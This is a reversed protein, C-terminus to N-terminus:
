KKLRKMWPKKSWTLNIHNQDLHVQTITEGTSLLVGPRIKPIVPIRSRNAVGFGTQWESPIEAPKNVWYSHQWSGVYIRGDGQQQWLLQDISFVKALSDMCHYGGGMSYFSPAKTNSYDQEPTVFVLGSDQSIAELTENLTVNRLNLPLLRNLTASLERCFLQQQQGDLAMSNEIFGIFYRQLKDPDYGLSFHVIGSLKQESQVTFTAVGPNFLHLRVDENILKFEKGSVRIVKHVPYIAIM